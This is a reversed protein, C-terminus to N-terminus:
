RLHRSDTRKRTENQQTTFQNIHKVIEEPHTGGINHGGNPIIHYPLHYSNLQKKVYKVPTSSDSDGYILFIEKKSVKKLLIRIDLRVVLDYSKRLFATGQRYYQSFILQYLSKLHQFCRKPVIHKFYSAIGSKTTVRRKLAPSILVVPSKSKSRVKYYLAIAGGFSYGVIIPSNLNKNKLWNSFHDTFDDLNFSTKDPESVGCFGPLNYFYLKYKSSLLNIFKTRNKWAIAAAYEEGKINKNYNQTGWGHILILDQKM